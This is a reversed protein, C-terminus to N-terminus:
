GMTGIKGAQTRANRRKRPAAYGLARMSVIDALQVVKGKPDVFSTREALLAFRGNPAFGEVRLQPPLSWRDTLRGSEVDMWRVEAGSTAIVTRGDPLLQQRNGDTRVYRYRVAGLRSMAGEPLPDGFLDNKRQDLDLGKVPILQPVTFVPEELRKQPSSGGALAFHISAVMGIALTGTTLMGATTIMIRTIIMGKMAKQALAVVPLAAGSEVMSHGVAGAFSTRLIARLVQVSVLGASAQSLELTALAGAVTLGRKVLRLHLMQRGRALRRKYTTLSWGLWQAGEDQTAGQLNTLVLPMRYRAPM